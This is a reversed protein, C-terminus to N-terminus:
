HRVIKGTVGPTGDVMITYFFLGAGQPFDDGTFLFQNIGARFIGSQYSVTAGPLNRVAIDVKGSTELNFEITVNDTFPNPYAMIRNIGALSRDYSMVAEDTSFTDETGFSIGSENVAYAKFYYVQEPVLDTLRTMFQGVGNGVQVKTGNVEPLPVTGYYVGTETVAAGGNDTVYGGVLASINTIESAQVTFVSPLSNPKATRFITPAGYAIGVDNVAYAKIYYDTDMALGSLQATYKGTGSGISFKMGSLEPDPITSWFVGRESVTVGGDDTVNGGVIASTETINSVKSTSVFPIHVELPVIKDIQVDLWDLRDSVWNKLYNIENSYTGGIYNNPWVYTSLINFKEFNRAQAEDLLNSCSDIFHDITAKSIANERLAEWRYKLLTEFYPDTRFKDWWFPIEYWDGAGIGDSAWGVPNGASFFNANGFCINYDWFPYMVLKGGKSDKDKYFYVSVRYGDLDRSLETIIFYDIFSIVDIYARYGTEPDKYNPGDLAYEFDTVYERIYNRQEVTMEEYKPDYYSIPVEVSGTRGMFPSIWCDPRHRDIRLIYGGTLQDGSIDEPRLRAIDVRNKDIKIKEVFLYVGRYENNIEVEVFRTRPHWGGMSNGIAYALANRMLSKDSYPGHLVWDNEAPMGLLPVNNNEGDSLRTEVTYSKKPFMQATNGRIEIGIYGDYEYITDSFHNIGDPNNIVKMRATIKPEDVIAQGETDIKIIPLNSSLFTVPKVFWAPTNHFLVQASEVEAHIFIRASLDSSTINMNLIHFAMINDGESLVEPNLIYREPLGGSYMVAEREYSLDASLGPTGPPVNPSRAVETGNIYAVFGDDYDIDLLLQHIPVSPPITLKKRLYISTTSPVITQDDGDGYGFGGRGTDWSSDDYNIQIWDTAPATAPVLYKFEDSEIVLSEWHTQGRAYVSFATLFITILLATYPQKM